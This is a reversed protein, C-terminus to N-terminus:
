TTVPAEELRMQRVAFRWTGDHRRLEDRYHGVLAVRPGNATAAMVMVNSESTARDGDIISLINATFHRGGGLMRRFGDDYASAFGSIEERGVLYQGLGDLVADDTWCALWTEYDGGDLSHNYTAILAEIALRDSVEVIRM